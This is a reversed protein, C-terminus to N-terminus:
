IGEADVARVGQDGLATALGAVAGVARSEALGAQGDDALTVLIKPRRQRGLLQTSTWPRGIPTSVRRCHIISSPM